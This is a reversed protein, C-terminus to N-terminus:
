VAPLLQPKIGDKLKGKMDLSVAHLTIVKRALNMCQLVTYGLDSAKCLDMKGNKKASIIMLDEIERLKTGGNDIEFLRQEEHANAYAGLQLFNEWYIGDPAERSPNTTKLDCLMVKGDIELLCDYTGAYQGHESYIVNEVGLVTPKAKEFWKEFAMYANTAEPSHNTDVVGGTLYAEVMSHAETGTSGGADRLREHELAAIQLDEETVVPLKAKIYDLAVDMPWTMLGKKSLTDGLITTVGKRAVDDVKYRPARGRANPNFVLHHKGNYLDAEIAQTAM